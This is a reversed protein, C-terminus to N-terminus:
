RLWPSVIISACPCSMDSSREAMGFDLSVSVMEKEGFSLCYGIANLGNRLLPSSQGDFRATLRVRAIEFIQDSAQPGRDWYMRCCM